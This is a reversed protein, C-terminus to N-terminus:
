DHPSYFSDYCFIKVMWGGSDQADEIKAFKNWNAILKVSM